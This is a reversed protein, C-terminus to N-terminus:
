YRPMEPDATAAWADIGGALNRVGRFGRECLLRTAMASRMGVHCYVVIERDRPLEGCRRDLEQAPILCAGSLHCIAWEQETRVDLLLPAEARSLEAQLEKVSLEQLAAPQEEPTACSEEIECLETITPEDGCAPCAQDRRVSLERFRMELADVLLLRGLLGEGCRLLWKLTETAQLSGVIGPLVGLVGGEACNPVAGAPPPEPFLCRYCPGRSPWFLSVQGEFRFISGHVFPRTALVCADNVLYRTPFNDSGDVVIDYRPILELANAANLRESHPELTVHPNVDQLREVAAELKPRGVDSTGYLIQRQLNSLEVTDFEVLGIRGVGAAALYLAVPSGLGGAGVVLVAAARLRAQGEIGVEPLVLHRRYREIERQDLRTTM